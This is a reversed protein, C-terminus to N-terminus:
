QKQLWELRSQIYKDDPNKELVQQYVEIAAPFNSIGAYGEALMRRADDSQPFLEVRLQIVPMVKENLGWTDRLSWVLRELTAEQLLVHDPSSQRLARIKQIATGSEGTVVAFAFEEYSILAPEATRHDMTMVLDPFVQKPTKSLFARNNIDQNLFAAFFNYIYTNVANHEMAIEPNSPGWYGSMASRGPILAYSTYDVHGLGKTLLLYRDARRATDFLSEAKADDPKIWYSPVSHLWPIRLELPDYHPSNAPLGDPRPYLIGSSVSVFADVDANRMTLVLGAMGGMDFGFVGLMDPSVFPQKRARSIVYELDRIQTELDQVTMRVIPSNTGVLPCSAVVFGRAALYEALAAFVIPSEYYLGQGMVILPFSGDLAQASETALVPQELLQEFRDPGLSRALVKTSYRLQSRLSGVIEAPWIDQDALEAYRRFKMHEDSGTSKAPYWLYVRIPRSYTKSPSANSVVM